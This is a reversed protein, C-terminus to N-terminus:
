PTINLFRQHIWGFSNKPPSIKYWGEEDKLITVIEDEDITGVVASSLDASIRVNIGSKIAKATQCNETEELCEFLEKKVYAPAYDPLRIQYWEYAKSIIEVKSGKDVTCIVDSNIRSDTRLNIGEARVEATESFCLSVNFLLIVLLISAIRATSKLSPM